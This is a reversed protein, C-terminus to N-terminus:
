FNEYFNEKLRGIAAAEERSPNTSVRNLIADIQRKLLEKDISVLVYWEYVEEQPRPDGAPYGKLVWFDTERQAGSYGSDAATKIVNEFYRGYQRDPNGEAAATFRAQIRNSVM